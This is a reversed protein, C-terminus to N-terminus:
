LTGEKPGSLWLWLYLGATIVAMVKFGIHM